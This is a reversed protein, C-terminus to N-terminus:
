RVCKLVPNFTVKGNSGDKLEDIFRICLNDAVFKAIPRCETDVGTEPDHGCWEASWQYRSQDELQRTMGRMSVMAGIFTGIFASGWIIGWPISSKM